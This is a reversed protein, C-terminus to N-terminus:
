LINTLEINLGPKAAYVEKGTLKQIDSVFLPEDGNDNSLHLLVINTVTSLDNNRLFEKCSSLEMHSNQLRYRQYEITNGNKINEILKKDYYNCEVLIHNLKPFVYECECSDTLFMIRGSEPHDILFGVCPVDHHAPFPIVKFKGFKYGKGFSIAKVRNGSVEKSEIVDDLALTYIGYEAIKRIHKAHDNHRHSILCGVVKKLQFNLAKKVNMFNIGAEILLAEDKTELIYSNGSSSSGLIKLEMNM